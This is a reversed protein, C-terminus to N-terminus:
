DVVEAIRRTPDVIVVRNSHVIFKHGRLKPVKATVVAPFEQVPISAPIQARIELDIDETVRPIDNLIFEKVVHEDDHTLPVKPKSESIQAFSGTRAPAPHATPLQPGIACTIAMAGTTAARFARRMDKSGALRRAPEAVSTAHM